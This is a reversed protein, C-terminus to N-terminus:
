ESFRECNVSSMLEIVLEQYCTCGTSTGQLVQRCQTREHQLSCPILFECSDVVTDQGEFRDQEATM